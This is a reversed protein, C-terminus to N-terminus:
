TWHYEAGGPLSARARMPTEPLIDLSRCAELLLAEDMLVFELVALLFEPDSVRARLGAPSDGSWAMFAGIRAHDEALWALLRAALAEAADRTMM